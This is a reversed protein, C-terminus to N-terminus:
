PRVGYLRVGFTSDDDLRFLLLHFPARSFRQAATSDMASPQDVIMQRWVHGHVSPEGDPCLSGHWWVDLVDASDTEALTLAYVDFNRRRMGDATTDYWVRWSSVCAAPEVQERIARRMTRVFQRAVTRSLSLGQGDRPMMDTESPQGMRYGSCAVVLACLSALIAARRM